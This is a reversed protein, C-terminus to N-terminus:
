SISKLVSATRRIADTDTIPVIFDDQDSAGM